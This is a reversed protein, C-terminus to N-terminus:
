VFLSGEIDTEQRRSGNTVKTLRFRFHVKKEFHTVLQKDPNNEALTQTFAVFPEDTVFFCSFNM